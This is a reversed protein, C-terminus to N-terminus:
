QAMMDEFTPVGGPGGPQGGLAGIGGSMTNIDQLKSQVYEQRKQNYLMRAEMSRSDDSIQWNKGYKESLMGNLQRAVPSAEFDSGLKQMAVIQRTRAAEGMAGYYQQRSGIMQKQIGAQTDIGYKQMSLQAQQLSNSNSSNIVGLQLQQAGQKLEAARQGYQDAMSKNGKANALEQLKMMQEAQSVQNKMATNLVDRQIYNNVGEEGGKAINQLAYQSGGAAASLGGKILSLYMNKKDVDALGAKQKDIISQVGAFAAKDGAGYEAERQKSLQAINASPDEGLKNLIDGYGMLSPPTYSGGGGGGMDPPPGGMPPQGQPPQGFQPPMPPQEPPAEPAATLLPGVKGAVHRGVTDIAGMAPFPLANPIQLGSFAGKVKKVITDIGDAASVGLKPLVQRLVEKSYGTKESIKDLIGSGADSEVDGGGAYSMIGGGAFSKQDYMDQPIPLGALGAMQEGAAMNEQAIPPRQQGLAQSQQMKKQQAIKNNLVLQGINQDITGHKIAQVLQPITLKEAMRFLNMSDNMPM